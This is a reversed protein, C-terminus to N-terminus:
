YYMGQGQQDPSEERPVAQEERPAAQEEQSVTPGEPSKVIITLAIRWLPKRDFNWKTRFTASVEDGVQLDEKKREQGDSDMIRTADEIRLRIEQNENKVFNIDTQTYQITITPNDSSLDTSIIKGTANHEVFEVEASFGREPCAIFLLGIFVASLLCLNKKM